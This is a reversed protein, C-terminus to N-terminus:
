ELGVEHLAARLREFPESLFCPAFRASAKQLIERAQADALWTENADDGRGLDLRSWRSNRVVGEPALLALPLQLSVPRVLIGADDFCLVDPKTDIWNVLPQALVHGVLYGPFRDGFLPRTLRNLKVPATHAFDLPDGDLDVILLGGRYTRGESIYSIFGITSGNTEQNVM